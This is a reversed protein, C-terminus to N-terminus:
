VLRRLQDILLPDNKLLFAEVIRIARRYSLREENYYGARHQWTARNMLSPLLGMPNKEFHRVNLSHIRDLINRAEKAEGMRLQTEALSELIEVQDLNHPGENVHTIHAARTFTQFAQDPRGNGLQAAGLGKLPNVLSGNLRDEIVELIEISSTFNQIAADYQENSHQVIGLNNLASATERSQPGYVEIAMEVIRKAAIDAEDLSGEQLLRRYRGFESLLREEGILIEEDNVGIDIEVYDTDDDAVPVVQDLPSAEDDIEVQQARGVHATFLVLLLAIYKVTKVM